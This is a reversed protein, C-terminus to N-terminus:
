GTARFGRLGQLRAELRGDIFDCLVGQEIVQEDVVIEVGGVFVQAGDEEGLADSVVSRRVQGFRQQGLVLTWLAERWAAPANAFWM